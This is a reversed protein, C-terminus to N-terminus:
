EKELLEPNDHINGVIEAAFEDTPFSTLLRLMSSNEWATPESRHLYRVGFGAIRNIWVIVGIWDDGFVNGHVIDGEFVKNGNKDLLGTFQGVTEPDVEGSHEYIHAHVVGGATIKILNGYVWNGKKYISSSIPVNNYMMKARFLIERM